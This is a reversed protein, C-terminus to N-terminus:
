DMAGRGQQRTACAALVAVAPQQTTQGRRSHAEHVQGPGQQTAGRWADGHVRRELNQRLPTDGREQKLRDATLSTGRERGCRRRSQAVRAVCYPWVIRSESGRAQSEGQPVLRVQRTRAASRGRLRWKSFASHERSTYGRCRSTGITHLSVRLPSKRQAPVSSVAGTRPNAGSTAVIPSASPPPLHAGGVRQSGM